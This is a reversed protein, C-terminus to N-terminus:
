TAHEWLMELRHRVAEFFADEEYFLRLQGQDSREVLHALARRAGFLRLKATIAHGEVTLTKTM